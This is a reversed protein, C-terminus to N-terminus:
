RLVNTAALHAIVIIFTYYTVDFYYILKVERNYIYKIINRKNIM